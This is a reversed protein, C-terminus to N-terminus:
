NKPKTSIILERVDVNLYEALKLFHEPKPQSDNSLWRSVTTKTVKLFDVIENSRINKEALVVRIRNFIVKDM